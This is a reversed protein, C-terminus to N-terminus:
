WSYLNLQFLDDRDVISVVCDLNVKPASDPEANQAQVETSASAESVSQSLIPTSQTLSPPHALQGFQILPASSSAHSVQLLGNHPPVHLPMQISGIQIAPVSAQLLPTGPLLGFQLTMPVESPHHLGPLWVSALQSSSVTNDDGQPTSFAMFSLPPQSQQSPAPQSDCSDSEETLGTVSPRLISHEAEEQPLLRSGVEETMQFVHTLGSYSTQM